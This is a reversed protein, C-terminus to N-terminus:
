NIKVRVKRMEQNVTTFNLIPTQRLAALCNKLKVSIPITFTVSQTPIYIFIKGMKQWTQIINPSTWLLTNFSQLIRSVWWLSLQAESLSMFSNTDRNATNITQSPPSSPPSSPHIKTYNQQTSPVEIFIPVAFAVGKKQYFFFPLRYILGM